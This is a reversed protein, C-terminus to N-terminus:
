QDANGGVSQMIIMTKKNPMKALLEAGLADSFVLRGPAINVTGATIGGSQNYSTVSQATEVPKSQASAASPRLYEGITMLGLAGFIAGCVGLVIRQQVIFGAELSAWILCAGALILGAVTYWFLQPLVSSEARLALGRAACAAAVVSGLTWVIAVDAM